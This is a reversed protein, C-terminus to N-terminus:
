RAAAKTQDLVVGSADLDSLQRLLAKRREAVHDERSSVLELSRQKEPDGYKQRLEVLKLMKGVANISATGIRVPVAQTMLDGILASLFEAADTDTRLGSSAIAVSRAPAEPETPAQNRDAQKSDPASNRADM